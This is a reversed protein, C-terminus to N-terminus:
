AARQEFGLQRGLAAVVAPDFRRGAEECVAAYAVLRPDPALTSELARHYAAAVAVIRAVLPPPLRRASSQSTVHPASVYPLDDIVRLFAPLASPYLRARGSSERLRRWLRECANGRKLEILHQRVESPTLAHLLGLIELAKLENLRLGLRRGLQLSLTSVRWATAGAKPGEGAAMAGAADILLREESLRERCDAVARAALALLPRLPALDFREGDARELYLVGLPQGDDDVLLEALLAANAPLAANGPGSLESAEKPDVRLSEGAIFAEEIWEMQHSAVTELSSAVVDLFPSDAGVIALIAVQAGSAAKLAELLGQGLEELDAWAPIKRELAECQALMRTRGELEAAWLRDTEREKEALLRTLADYSIANPDHAFHAM